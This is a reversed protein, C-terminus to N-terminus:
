KLDYEYTTVRENNVVKKRLRNAKDYTYAIHLQKQPCNEQVLLNNEDYKRVTEYGLPDTEYIVNGFRDYKWLLTYRLVGDSDYVEKKEIFNDKNYHNVCKSFLIRHHDSTREYFVEEIKPLDRGKQEDCPTLVTVKCVGESEESAEVLVGHANYKFAKRKVEKGEEEDTVQLSPLHTKKYYQYKEVTGDFSRISSLRNTGDDTYTRYTIVEETPTTPVGKENFSIPHSQRGTLHGSVVEKIVNGRGDHQYRISKEGGNSSQYVKAVLRQNKKEGKWVFKETTTHKGSKDFAEIQKLRRNADFTYTKKCGLPDFFDTKSDFYKFSHTSHSEGNPGVPSRIAKLRNNGKEESYYEFSYDVGGHYCIRRPYYFEHKGQKKWQFEAKPLFRNKICKPHPFPKRHSRFMRDNMELDFPYLTYDHTREGYQCVLRYHNPNPMDFYVCSYLRKRDSSKSLVAKLKRKVVVEAFEFISQAKGKVDRYEYELVTGDRRTEWLLHFRSGELSDINLPCPKGYVKKTGDGKVIVIVDKRRDHKIAMNQVNTQGSPYGEPGNMIHFSNHMKYTSSLHKPNANECCANYQRGEEDYFRMWYKRKANGKAIMLSIHPMFKFYGGDYGVLSSYSSYVYIPVRSHSLLDQRHDIFQGTGVSFHQDVMAHPDHMLSSEEGFLGVWFFLMIWFRLMCFGVNSSCGYVSQLISVIGCVEM